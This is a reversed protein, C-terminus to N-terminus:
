CLLPYIVSAICSLWLELLQRQQYSPISPCNSQCPWMYPTVGSGRWSAGHSVRHTAALTFMKQCSHVGWRSYMHAFMRLLFFFFYNKHTFQNKGFTAGSKETLWNNSLISMLNNTSSPGKTQGRIATQSYRHWVWGWERSDSYDVVPFQLATPDDPDYIPCRVPAVGPLEVALWSTAALMFAKQRGPLCCVHVEVPISSLLADWVVTVFTVM